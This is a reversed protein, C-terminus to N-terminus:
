LILPSPIEQQFALYRRATGFHYLAHTLIKGNFFPLIAMGSLTLFDTWVNVKCM